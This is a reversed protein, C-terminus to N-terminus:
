DYETDLEPGDAYSWNKPEVVVYSSRAFSQPLLARFRETEQSGVILQVRRGLDALREILIEVHEGDFARTPDDLLVLYVETPAESAQGLAFYPVLELASQAQGNLVGTAHRQGSSDQSSAVQLALHPLRESDILLRDYYPHRTLAVFVRTLEEAVGPVKDALQLNLSSEVADRIDRVSEGFAALNAYAREVRQLEAKVTGIGHLDSQIQHYKEEDALKSLESRARKFWEDKDEMEAGISAEQEMLADIVMETEGDHVAASFEELEEIDILTRLKATLDGVESRLDRIAQNAEEADQLQENLQRLRSVGGEPLTEAADSLMAELEQRPHKHACVPCIAEREEDDRHLVEMADVALQRKLSSTETAQRLSEVRARLEDYSQGNLVTELREEAAALADQRANTNEQAERVERLRRLSDRVRHLETRSPGQEQLEKDQLAEETTEILAGLSVGSLAPDTPRGAIRELLARTQKESTTVTPPQEGPWPPAALVRGRQYQLQSIQADIRTRVATIREDLDRETDEQGSLFVELHSHLVRPHTLGLHNFVTREFPTLDEPQRRLPTSQPAFIIHTGEGANLSDLQPMIDRISHENGHNDLLEADSGGSAGRILSRRLRWEKGDRTLSIEVRCAGSYGQNAVIDNPRGTSGFLGWRVAEIISSKGNGNRGLLFAHRNRLDIDKRTTFGKFGEVVVRGIGFGEAM